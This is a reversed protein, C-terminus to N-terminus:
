KKGKRKSALEAANKARITVQMKGSQFATAQVSQGEFYRRITYALVVEPKERGAWATPTMDVIIAKGKNAPNRLAEMIEAYDPNSLMRNGKLRSPAETVNVVKIPMRNLEEITLRVVEPPLQYFVHNRWCPAALQFPDTVQIREREAADAAHIITLM